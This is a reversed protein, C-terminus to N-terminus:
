RNTATYTSTQRNSRTVMRSCCPRAPSMALANPPLLLWVRRRPNLVLEALASMGAGGIGMFHVTHDGIVDGGRLTQVGIQRPPREGIIGNQLAISAMVIEIVGRANMGFGIALAERPRAGGLRAGLGAGLVKGLCAM